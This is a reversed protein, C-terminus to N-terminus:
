TAFTQDNEQLREVYSSAEEKLSDLGINQIMEACFADLLLKKATHEDLGRTKLYFLGDEDLETITAGHSAKVDDAYIRLNPRSNVIGYEGLMLTAHKQYSQTLLAEKHVFIQGEFSAKAKSKLVTKISQSSQVEGAIHEFNTSIHYETKEDILSLAYFESKSEKQHHIVHLHFKSPAKPMHLDCVKIFANKKLHVTMADLMIAESDANLRTVECTSNSELDIDVYSASQGYESKLATMVLEIKAEKGVHIYCNSTPLLKSSDTYSIIQLPVNLELGEPIIILLGQLSAQCYLSFPDTEKKQRQVLKAHVFPMYPSRSTELREIIISSPVQSLNSLELDVRGNKIVLYSGLSEPLVKELIQQKSLSLVEQRPKKEYLKSLPFYAYTSMKKDPLGIELFHDFAKKSFMSAKDLSTEHESILGNLFEQKKELTM